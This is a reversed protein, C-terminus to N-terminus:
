SNGSAFGRHVSGSRIPFSGNGSWGAESGRPSPWGTPAHPAAPPMPADPDQHPNDGVFPEDPALAKLHRGLPIGVGIFQIWCVELWEDGFLQKLNVGQTGILQMTRYQSPQAAPFWLLVTNETGFLGPLTAIGRGLRIGLPSLHFVNYAVFMGAGFIEPFERAHQSMIWGHPSHVFALVQLCNHLSRLHQLICSLQPDQVDLLQVYVLSKRIDAVRVSLARGGGNVTM